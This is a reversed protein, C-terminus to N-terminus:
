RIGSTMSADINLLQEEMMRQLAEQSLREQPLDDFRHLYKRMTAAAKHGAPNKGLELGHIFRVAQEKPRLFACVKAHRGLYHVSEHLTLQRLVTVGEYEGWPSYMERAYTDAAEKRSLFMSVSDDSDQEEQHAMEILAHGDLWFVEFHETDFIRVFIGPNDHNECNTKM